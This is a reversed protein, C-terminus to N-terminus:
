SKELLLGSEAFLVPNETHGSRKGLYLRICGAPGNRTVNNHPNLARLARIRNSSGVFYVLSPCQRKPSPMGQVLEELRGTDVLTWAGDENALDLWAAM